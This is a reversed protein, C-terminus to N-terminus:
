WDSVTSSLPITFTFKTGKGIESEAKLVGGHAEVIGKAISLGLGAGTRTARNAQWFRNFLHPLHEETIGPGTDTVEFEGFRDNGCGTVVISGGIPTFKIANGILNSFVQSIREKDGAIRAPEGIWESTLTLGKEEALGRQDEIADTLVQHAD